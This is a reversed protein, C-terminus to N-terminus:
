KKGTLREAVARPNGGIIKIFKKIEKTTFDGDISCVHFRNNNKADHERRFRMAFTKDSGYIFTDPNVRNSTLNVGLKECLQEKFNREAKAKQTEKAKEAVKQKIAHNAETFAEKIRELAAEVYKSCTRKVALSRRRGWTNLNPYYKETRPTKLYVEYRGGLGIDYDRDRNWDVIITTSNTDKEDLKKNYIILTDPKRGEKEFRKRMETNSKIRSFVVKGTFWTQKVLAEMLIVMPLKNWDTEHDNWIMKKRAM